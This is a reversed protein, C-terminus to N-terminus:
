NVLIRDVLLEDSQGWVDESHASQESQTAADPPTLQYRELLNTVSDKDITFTKGKNMRRGSRFGYRRLAGGIWKPTMKKCEDEDELFEDAKYKVEKISYDRKVTVIENLAFLVGKDWDGLSDEEEFENVAKDKLREFADSDLEYTKLHKAVALIPAWLENQRCELLNVDEDQFVEHVEPMCHLSYRYLRSRLLPWNVSNDDIRYNGKQKNATRIMTITLCRSRLTPDPSNIAAIMKPSFVDFHEVKHTDKNTRAVPNNRKYGANLILRLDASNENYSLMEAEDILITAQNSNILRFIASASTNSTMQANYALRSVIELVKTKGSGRTGTLLVYPYANWLPLQYTGMIWIAVLAADSPNQFDVASELLNVLHVYLDEYPNFEAEPSELYKKLSEESWLEKNPYSPVTEFFMNRGMQEEPTIQWFDRKNSVMWVENGVKMGKKDPVVRVFPVTVYVLKEKPNFGISSTLVQIKNDM